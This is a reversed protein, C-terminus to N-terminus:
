RTAAVHEDVTLHLLDVNKLLHMSSRIECSVFFLSMAVLTKQFEVNVEFKLGMNTETALSDAANSYINSIVIPM